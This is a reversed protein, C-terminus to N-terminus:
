FEPGLSNLVSRVEESQIESPAGSNNHDLQHAGPRVAGWPSNLASYRAPMVMPSPPRMNPYQMRALTDRLAQREALLSDQFALLDGQQMKLYRIEEQLERIKQQFAEVVEPQVWDGRISEVAQTCVHELKSKFNDFSGDPASSTTTSSGCVRDNADNPPTVERSSVKNSDGQISTLAQTLRAGHKEEELKKQLARELSKGARAPEGPNVQKPADSYLGTDWHAYACEEDTKKCFGRNRWWFCTMHKVSKNPGGTGSNTHSHRYPTSPGSSPQTRSPGRNGRVMYQKGSPNRVISPVSSSRTDSRKRGQQERAPRSPTNQMQPANPASSTNEYAPFSQQLPSGVVPNSTQRLAASATWPYSQDQLSSVTASSASKRLLRRDKLTLFQPKPNPPADDSM